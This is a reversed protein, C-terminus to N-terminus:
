VQEVGEFSAEDAEEEEVLLIYQAAPYLAPPLGLGDLHLHLAGDAGPGLDGGRGGPAALALDVLHSLDESITKSWVNM